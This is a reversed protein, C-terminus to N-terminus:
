VRHRSLLCMCHCVCVYVHMCAYLLMVGDICEIIKPYQKLLASITKIDDNEAAKLFQLRSEVNGTM